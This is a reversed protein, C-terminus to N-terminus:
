RKKHDMEHPEKSVEVSVDKIVCFTLQATVSRRRRKYQKKSYCSDIKTGVEVSDQKKAGMDMVTNAPNLIFM